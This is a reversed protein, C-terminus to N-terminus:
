VLLRMTTDDVLGIVVVCDAAAVADHSGTYAMMMMRMVLNFLM